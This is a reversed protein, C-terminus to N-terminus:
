SQLRRRRIAMGGLALVGLSLPILGGVPVPAIRQPNCAGAAIATDPVSEFCASHVTVGVSGEFTEVDLYGYHTEGSRDFRVGVFGRSPPPFPGPDVGANDVGYRCGFLYAYSDFDSAGSISAGPSIMGAYYQDVIVIDGGYEFGDFYAYGQTAVVCDDQYVVSLQLDLFSDGDVDLYNSNSSDTEDATVTLPLSGSPSQTPAAQATGAVLAGAIGSYLALRKQMDRSVATDTM